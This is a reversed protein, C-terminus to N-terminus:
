VTAGPRNSFTSPRQQGRANGFFDNAAWTGPEGWFYGTGHLANGGSKISITTVGGETNGFQSDFTATQVKFEQIIDTPPVYSAIVENANATATSPVGDIMLDSRNSRIISPTGLVAVALAFSTIAEYTGGVSIM